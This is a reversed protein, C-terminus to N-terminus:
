VVSEVLSRATPVDEASGIKEFHGSSNVGFISAKGNKRPVVRVRVGCPTEGKVAPIGSKTKGETWKM